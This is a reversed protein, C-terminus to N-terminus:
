HWFQVGVGQHASGPLDADQEVDQLGIAELESVLLRGLELQGPSSPSRTRDRAAQTDITM